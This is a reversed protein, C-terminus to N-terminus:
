RLFWIVLGVTLAAAAIIGYYASMVGRNTGHGTRMRGARVRRPGTEEDRAMAIRSSSSPRGAAEDDTGLPSLGPDHAPIKDGTRGSDIEAKLQASTPRTSAAPAEPVRDAPPPPTESRLAM